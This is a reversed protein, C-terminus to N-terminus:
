TWFMSLMVASGRPTQPGVVAAAILVSAAWEPQRQFTAGPGPFERRSWLAEPPQLAESDSHELM